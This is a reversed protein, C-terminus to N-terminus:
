APEEELAAVPRCAVPISITFTAGGQRRNEAWVKGNQAALLGRTIPLGMGTGFRQQRAAVGRYFRDFLRDLDESAIGPGDDRVAIRLENSALEVDVAITSGAPSYQAANELLHALAASTLRPDLRVLWDTAKATELKHRCIAHEVQRAAAEVVEEPQVWEPAAAVAHTEIRAMDVIDQFMRNLRALETQVIEVQDRRQAPTLWSANLNNAAVTVATLPTKLNHGLSALLASKLEAERRLVEAEKREELLETRERAQASLHSAILSVALLTFLAIWNQADTVHWTRVPPLFFYNFCCFALLSATVAVWRLSVTAVILITLLFSLAVVTSNTVGLRLFGATLLGIAAAAAVASAVQLALSPRHPPFTM